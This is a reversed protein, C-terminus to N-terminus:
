KVSVFSVSLASSFSVRHSVMVVRKGALQSENADMWAPLESFARTRPDLLPM